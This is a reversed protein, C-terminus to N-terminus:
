SAKKKSALVKARDEEDMIHRIRATEVDQWVRCVSNLNTPDLRGKMMLKRAERETMHFLLALQKWGYLFCQLHGKPEKVEPAPAETKASTKGVNTEKGKGKTTSM